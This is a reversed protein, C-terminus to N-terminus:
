VGSAAPAARSAPRRTVTSPTLEPLNFNSRSYPVPRRSLGEKLYQEANALRRLIDGNGSGRIIILTLATDAFVEHKLKCSTSLLCVNFKMKAIDIGLVSLSM